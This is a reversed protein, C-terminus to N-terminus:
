NSKQGAKRRVGGGVLGKKCFQEIKNLTKRGM